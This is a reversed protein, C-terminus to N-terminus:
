RPASNGPDRSISALPSLTSDPIEWDIKLGKGEAHARIGANAAALMKAIEEVGKRNRAIAAPSNEHPWGYVGLPTYGSYDFHLANSVHIHPMGLQMPGLKAYFQVTDILLADIENAQVIEPLSKLMAETKSLLVRVSFQLADKGQLKSMEPRNKTLKIKKLALFLRCDRLGQQTFSSSRM